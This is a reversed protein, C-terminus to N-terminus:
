TFFDAIGELRVEHVYGCKPCAKSSDAYIYPVSDFFGRLQEFQEDTLSDIWDLLEEKTCDKAYYVSDEDYIYDICEIVSNSDDPNDEEVIQATASLSPIKMVVGIAPTFAFTRDPIDSIKIDTCLNVSIKFEAGCKEEGVMNECRYKLDLTEGISKARINAFLLEVDVTPLSDIDIDDVVCNSLIQKIAMVIDAAEKSESAM